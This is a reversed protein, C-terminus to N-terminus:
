PDCILSIKETTLKQLPLQIPYEGGTYSELWKDVDPGDVPDVGWLKGDLNGDSPVRNNHYWEGTLIYYVLGDGDKDAAQPFAASLTEDDEFLSRDWADVSGAEAYTGTSSDYRYLNFPWSRGAWGQNHSWDAKAAGSAYFQVGAFEEFELNVGQGDYQFVFDTTGAMSANTWRLLLEEEGDGDLDYVAFQNESAAEADIWDLNEGNPLVGKLLADKLVQGYALSRAADEDPATSSGATNNTDATSTEETPAETNDEPNSVTDEISVPEGASVSEGASPQETTAFIVAKHEAGCASLTGLLLGSLFIGCLMWIFQKMLSAEKQTM